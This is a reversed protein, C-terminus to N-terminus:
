RPRITYNWEGHFDHCYINLSAMEADTVRRGKEYVNDDLVCRVTLGQRTTTAAIMKIIVDLSVLPKGRWNTSIFSFLRHEIKNWKSTGPPLHSVSIPLGLEDALKQLELKWLRTRYGNSGGCDATILLEAAKPYLERGASTWWRRISEVAFEATDATVGVNVWGTNAGLDYVGYPNAKGLDNDVFDHVRVKEPNGKPRLERGRNKFPGVLEKKKTDVSIVPNGTKLQLETRANIHEFQANRDPHNAGELTKRNGQLSYGLGKLLRGVTRYSVGHGMAVLEQALRRLSKTTWRLPSEPDGRTVPDVLGELDSLLSPDQETKTKRGGGPRRIRRVVEGAPVGEAAKLARIGKGITSPALGTARHVSAIGGYGLAMAESAAWERRGREDLSGRLREFQRRLQAESKMSGLMIGFVSKTV